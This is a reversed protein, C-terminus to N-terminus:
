FQNNYLRYIHHHDKDKFEFILKCPNGRQYNHLGKQKLWESLESSVLSGHNKYTTIAETIIIPKDSLYVSIKKVNEQNIMRRHYSDIGLRYNGNANNLPAVTLILYKSM